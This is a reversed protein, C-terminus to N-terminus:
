SSADDGLGTDLSSRRPQLRALGVRFWRIWVPALLIAFGALTILELLFTIMAGVEVLVVRDPRVRRPLLWGNTTAEIRLHSLSRAGLYAMWTEDYRVDYRLTEAPGPPVDAIAFWSVYQTFNIARIKRAAPEPPVGAPLHTQAAVVCEGICRVQTTKAPFRVWRYRAPGDSRVIPRGTSVDILTGRIWVLTDMGTSVDLTAQASTTLAGGYSQALEPAELFAIRVDVWDSAADAYVDSVKVTIPIATRCSRPLLECLSATDGIQVNGGQFERLLTGIAPNEGLTLKPMPNAIQASAHPRPHVIWGPVPLALGGGISPDTDLWPRAVVRSVGLAALGRDDGFQMYRGFAANVPYTMVSENLPGTDDPGLILDPDIGSGNTGLRLPPTPPLLAFRGHLGIERGIPASPVNVAWWHNPPAFLWSIPASLAALFWILSLPRIVRVGSAISALAVYGIVLFGILDYLERFLGVEPVHQVLWAFPEAIPGKTGTAITLSLVSLSLFLIVHRSRTAVIAAVAFLVTVLISLQGVGETGHSYGTFYGRLLWAESPETSLSREWALTIPIGLLSHRTLLITAAVLSAFLGVALLPRLMRYRLAVIALALGDLVFFQIQPAFALVIAVLVLPRPASVSRREAGRIEKRLIESCLWFTAGYALLIFLHGAVFQTYTWPNFTAVLVAAAAAIHTAGVRRSLDRAGSAIVLWITAVYAVNVVNSGAFSAIAGYLMVIMFSTPYGVPSGLGLADWGSAAGFVQSLSSVPPPWDHRLLPLGSFIFSTALLAAGVVTAADIGRYM